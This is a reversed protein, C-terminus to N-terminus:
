APALVRVDDRKRWHQHKDTCPELVLLHGPEATAVYGRCVYADGIGEVAPVDFEVWDGVKVAAAYM